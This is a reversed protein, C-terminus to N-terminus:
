GQAHIQGLDHLDQQNHMASYGQWKNSSNIHPVHLFYRDESAKSSDLKATYKALPPTKSQAALTAALINEEPVETSELPLSLARWAPLGGEMVVVRGAVTVFFNISHVLVLRLSLQFVIWVPSDVISKSM